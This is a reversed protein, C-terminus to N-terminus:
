EFNDVCVLIRDRLPLPPKRIFVLFYGILSTVSVWTRKTKTRFVTFDLWVYFMIVKTYSIQSFYLCFFTLQIILVRLPHLLVWLRTVVERWREWRYSRFLWWFGGNVLSLTSVWVEISMWFIDVPFLGVAKIVYM